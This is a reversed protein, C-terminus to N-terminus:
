TLTSCIAVRLGYIVVTSLRHQLWDLMAMEVFGAGYCWFWAALRGTAGGACFVFLKRSLMYASCEALVCRTM